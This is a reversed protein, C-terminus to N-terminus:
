FLATANILTHFHIHKHLLVPALQGSIRVLDYGILWTLGICKLDNYIGLILRPMKCMTQTVKAGNEVVQHWSLPNLM